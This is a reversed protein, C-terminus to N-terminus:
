TLSISQVGLPGYFDPSPGMITVGIRPVRVARRIAAYADIGMGIQDTIQRPDPIAGNAVQRLDVHMALRGGFRGRLRMTVRDSAAEEELVFLQYNPNQAAAGLDTGSWQFSLCFAGSETTLAWLNTLPPPQDTTMGRAVSRLRDASSDADPRYITLVGEGTRIWDLGVIVNNVGSGGRTVTGFILGGNM